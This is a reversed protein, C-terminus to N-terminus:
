RATLIVIQATSKPTPWIKSTMGMTVAVKQGSGTDYTIVGGSVAGGLGREFLTKGTTSDIAYFKGGM